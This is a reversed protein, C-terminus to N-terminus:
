TTRGILGNNQSGAAGRGVPRAARSLAVTPKPGSCDPLHRTLEGGAGTADREGPPRRHHNSTSSCASSGRANSSVDFNLRRTTSASAWVQAAPLAESLFSWFLETGTMDFEGVLSMTTTGARDQSAEVHLFQGRFGDADESM